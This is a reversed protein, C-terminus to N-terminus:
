VVFFDAQTLALGASVTAFHIAAGTGSGDADYSLAGTTKNYIIRDQADAAAAGTHFASASLWGDAIGKFVANDLRITDAAVNFDTIRDVNTTRNLATNFLFTDSGAGGTLTDNGGLGNITDKGGLGSLINAGSNGVLVNNLSNGTVNLAAAGVLNVNELYQGAMNFSVYSTVTDYGQGNLEVVVDAANAVLYSDNGVGGELRDHGGGGDLTDNGDYGRLTDDGGGGNLVNAGSNGYIFNALDNGT